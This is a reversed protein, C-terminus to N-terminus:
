NHPWSIQSQIQSVKASQNSLSGRSTNLIDRTDDDLLISQNQSVSILQRGSNLMSVATDELTNEASQLIANASTLDM